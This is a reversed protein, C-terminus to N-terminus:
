LFEAKHTRTWWSNSTQDTRFVEDVIDVADWFYDGGIEDSHIEIDGSRLRPFTKALFLIEQNWSSEMLAFIWLRSTRACVHSLWFELRSCKTEMELRSRCYICIKRKRGKWRQDQVFTSYEEPTCLRLNKSDVEAHKWEEHRSCCCLASFPM